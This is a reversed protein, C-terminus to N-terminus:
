ILYRILIDFQGTKDDSGVDSELVDAEKLKKLEKVWKYGSYLM